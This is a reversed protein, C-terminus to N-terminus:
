SLAERQDPLELMAEGALLADLWDAEAALERSLGGIVARRRELRAAVLLMGEEAGRGASLAEAAPVDPSATVVRAEAIRSEAAALDGLLDMAELQGRDLGQLTQQARALAQRGADRTQRERQERTRALEEIRAQLAQWEERHRREAEHLAAELRRHQEESRARLRELRALAERSQQALEQGLQALERETERLAERQREMDGELEGLARHLTRADHHVRSLERDREAVANELKQVVADRLEHPISSV